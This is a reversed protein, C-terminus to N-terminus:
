KDKTSERTSERIFDALIEDILSQFSQERRASERKLIAHLDDQIKITTM